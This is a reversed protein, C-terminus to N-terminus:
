EKNKDNKDKKSKNFLTDIYAKAERMKQIKEKTSIDEEIRQEISELIEAKLIIIMEKETRDHKNYGFLYRLGFFWWPLDKLLPVGTRVKTDETSYLGGIVTEEGNFLLVETTSQSKNVITSIEGPVASSREVRTVLHIAENLSDKVITPTVELIVGTTFFKDSINGAQDRTKVSFDKGVQIYGKRGSIVVISPRAIVTGKQHFEITRLLTNVDISVDGSELTTTGSANVIDSVVQSGGSFNVSAIVKGNYLTSWDVGISNLVSKDAIFFISSIRIQDTDPTIGKEEPMVEEPPKEEIVMDKILYVGPQEELILNNFNIVLELADKWYLQKIPIGIPATFSSMNVIKRSEFRQSMTELAIIAYPFNTDRSITILEGPSINKGEKWQCLLTSSLFILIFFILLKKM